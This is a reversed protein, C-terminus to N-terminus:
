ALAPERVASFQPAVKEMFLRMSHSTVDAPMPGLRFAGIVGGAGTAEIKAMEEAVKAPSGHILGKVVDSNAPAVHHSGMDIGQEALIRNRLKQRQEVMQLFAPVAIREAEADTDAVVINRWVWCDRQREAIAAEDLGAEALAKRYVAMRRGTEEASQVNMMFPLGRKGLGIAGEMSAAGRLVFPHPRSFCRPRLAPVRLNWFRGEHTFGEPSTWARLIIKEAEEYRGQAEDPDIGYGQYEYVNYTTGKGLGVILRGEALNDLLAIQEALRIPHYLSTQVVAFGITLKRTAGAVAAAFTVPDVYACNGDFHHEALWLVEFGLEETLRAEEMSERIIRADDDPTRAEPFLMNSFRLM